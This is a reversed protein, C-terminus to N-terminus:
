LLIVHRYIFATKERSVNSCVPSGINTRQVSSEEEVVAVAAGNEAYTWGGADFIM